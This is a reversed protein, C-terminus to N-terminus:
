RAAASSTCTCTTCRSAATVATTLPLATARRCARRSPWRCVASSPTTAPGPPPGVSLGADLPSAGRAHSAQVAGGAASGGVPLSRVQAAVYLLHGLLPKHAETAKSLQTLGNRVKPIVQPVAPPCAPPHPCPHASLRKM